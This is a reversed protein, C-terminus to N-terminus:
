REGSEIIVGTSDRRHRLGLPVTVADLVEALPGAATHVTVRRRADAPRAVHVSVDYRRALEAAVDGLPVNDFAVAGRAWALYTAAGRTRVEARGVRNLRAVDGPGLRTALAAPTGAARLAVAGETVVVRVLTDGAYARVGFTTGLDETLAHGARVVFPRAPDHRVDFVAEGELEARRAGRAGVAVDLRSEPALIVRTGDGLTLTAQQGRRTAYTRTAVAGVPADGRSARQGAHWWVGGATGVALLGAAAAAWARNRGHPARRARPLLRSERSPSGPGAGPRAARATGTEPAEQRVSEGMRASVGRWMEDVRGPTPLYAAADWWRRLAALERARGPSEDAWRAVEACETETGEGALVRAVIGWDPDAAAGGTVVRLVPPGPEVPPPVGAPRAPDAPGDSDSPPDSPM